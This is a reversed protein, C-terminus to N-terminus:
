FEYIRYPTVCATLPVDFGHTDSISEVPDFFSLGLCIADPRCEALFKDYFGMGYGVRFGKEDFALLPVLVLDIWNIPVLEGDIPERVGFDNKVLEEEDSFLVPLLQGTRLDVKPVVIKLGPNRFQLWRIISSTDPENTEAKALYTHVCQIYPLALKQLQILLLDQMKEVQADNLNLRKERFIKRIEKKTM